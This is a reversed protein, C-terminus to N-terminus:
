NAAKWAHYNTAIEAERRDSEIEAWPLEPTAAGTLTSLKLNEATPLAHRGPFELNVNGCAEDHDPLIGAHKPKPEEYNPAFTLEIAPFLDISTLAYTAFLARVDFLSGTFLVSGSMADFLDWPQAPTTPAEIAALAAAYVASPNSM